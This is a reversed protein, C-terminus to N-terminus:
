ATFDYKFSPDGSTTGDLHVVHSSGGAWGIFDNV